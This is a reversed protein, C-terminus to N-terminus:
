EAAHKGRKRTKKMVPVFSVQNEQVDYDVGPEMGEVELVGLLTAPTEDVCILSAIQKMRADYLSQRKEAEARRVQKMQRQAGRFQPGSFRSM